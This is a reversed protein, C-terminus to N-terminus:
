RKVAQQGRRWSRCPPQTPNLTCCLWLRLRRQRQASCVSPRHPLRRQPGQGPQGSPRQPGWCSWIGRHGSPAAWRHEWMNEECKMVCKPIINNKCDRCPIPLLTHTNRELKGNSIFNSCNSLFDVPCVVNLKKWLSLLFHLAVGFLDACFQSHVQGGRDPPLSANKMSLFFLWLIIFVSMFWLQNKNQNFMLDPNPMVCTETQHQRTFLELWVSPQVCSDICKGWRQRGGKLTKPVKGDAHGLSVQRQRMFRVPLTHRCTKDQWDSVDAGACSGTEEVWQNAGHTFEWLSQHEKRERKKWM